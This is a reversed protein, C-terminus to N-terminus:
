RHTRKILTSSHPVLHRFLSVTFSSAAQMTHNNEIISVIDKQGAIMSTKFKRTKNVYIHM